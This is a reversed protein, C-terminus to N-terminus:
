EVDAENDYGFSEWYGKYDGRALEISEIWKIWKYGYKGEVVLRLPYGHEKPLDVGDVAYALITRHAKIDELTLSTSYGDAARFIVITAENRIGAEKLLDTLPIGTWKAVNSWGEVCNLTIVETISPRAKLESLTVSLRRDVM